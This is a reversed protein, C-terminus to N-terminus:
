EEERRKYYAKKRKLNKKQKNTLEGKSEDMAAKADAPEHAAANEEEAANPVDAASASEICSKLGEQVRPTGKEILETFRQKKVFEAKDVSVSIPEELIENTEPFHLFRVNDVVSFLRKDRKTTLGRKM